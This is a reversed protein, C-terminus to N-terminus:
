EIPTNKTPSKQISIGADNIEFPHMKKSHKTGRMKLVEVYRKRQGKEQIYYLLIISDAEFELPKSSGKKATPEEELTLISTCNWTSIMNFLSLAAERKSHEEQFLLAFSTISDIVLRSIKKTLIITEISGGGQELMTKVKTPTYELFIFLGGKEYEALDWGFDKMNNYFKEKKEEFTVYLCKEGKKMGEVLFQTAFISKGSGSGGLIMNTSNRQLGGEILEDFSAIGTPVIESPKNQSPTKIKKVPKKPAISIKKVKKKM